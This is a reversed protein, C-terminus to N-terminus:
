GQSYRTYSTECVCRRCHPTDYKICSPQCDPPLPECDSSGYLAMGGSSRAAYEGGGANGGSIIYSTKGGGGGSLVYSTGGGHGTNGASSGIIYSIGSGGTSYTSGSNYYSEHCNDCSKSSTLATYYVAAQKCQCKPCKGESRIIEYGYPCQSSCSDTSPCQITEYKPELRQVSYLPRTEYVVQQKCACKSCSSTGDTFLEYGHACTATCTLTHTCTQATYQPRSHTYSTTTTLCECTPCGDAGCKYGLSCSSPCALTNRCRLPKEIYVQQVATLGVVAPHICECSPCGDRGCKYGFTCGSNCSHAACTLSYTQIQKTYEPPEIAYEVPYQYKEPPPEVAIEIPPVYPKEMTSVHHSSPCSCTRCGSSSTSGLVYKDCTSTCLLTAACQKAPKAAIYTQTSTSSVSGGGIFTGGGTGSGVGSGVGIGIGGGGNSSGGAVMGGAVGGATGGIFSGSLSSGMPMAGGTPNGSVAGSMPSGSMPGGMSGGSPGGAIANMGGAPGCPCSKCGNADVALCWKPCVIDHRTCGLGVSTRFMSGSSGHSQGGMTPGGASPGMHSMGGMPGTMPGSMGGMGSHFPSGGM